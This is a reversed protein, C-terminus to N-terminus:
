TKNRLHEIGSFLTGINSYSVVESKFNNFHYAGGPKYMGIGETGWSFVPIKHLNCFYTWEGCPCIVMKASLITRLIDETNDVDISDIVISESVMESLVTAAETVDNRTIIVINDTKEVKIDLPKFIKKSLPVTFNSYKTYRVTSHLTDSGSISTRLQKFLALYEKNSVKSNIIGRHDDDNSYKNEVPLYTVGPWNYLFRHGEHSSIYFKYDYKIL